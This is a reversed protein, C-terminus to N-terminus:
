PSRGLTWRATHRLTEPVPTISGDGSEVSWKIEVPAGAGVEGCLFGSPREPKVELVHPLTTRIHSGVVGWQRNGSVVVLNSRCEWNGVLDGMPDCGAVTVVCLALALHRKQM